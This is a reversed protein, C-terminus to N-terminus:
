VRCVKSRCAGGAGVQEGAGHKVVAVDQCLGEQGGSGAGEAALGGASHAGQLEDGGLGSVVEQRTLV